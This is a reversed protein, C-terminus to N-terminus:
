ADRVFAEQSFAENIIVALHRKDGFTNISGSAAIDEGNSPQGALPILLDRLHCDEDRIGRLMEAQARFQKPAQDLDRTILLECRDHGVSEWIIRSHATERSMEAEHHFLASIGPLDGGDEAELAM